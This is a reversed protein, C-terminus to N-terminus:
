DPSRPCWHNTISPGPTNPTMTGREKNARSLAGAERDSWGARGHDHGLAQRNGKNREPGSNGMQVPTASSYARRTRPNCFDCRGFLGFGELDCPWVMQDPIRGEEGATDIPQVLFRSNGLLRQRPEPCLAQQPAERRRGPLYLAVCCVSPEGIGM